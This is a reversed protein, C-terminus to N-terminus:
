IRNHSPKSQTEIYDWESDMRDRRAANNELRDMRHTIHSRLYLNLFSM